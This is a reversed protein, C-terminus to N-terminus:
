TKTKGVAPTAMRQNSDAHKTTRVDIIALGSVAPKTWIQAMGRNNWAPDRVLLMTGTIHRAKRIPFCTSEKRGKIIWPLWLGWGSPLEDWLHMLDCHRTQTGCTWFSFSIPSSYPTDNTSLLGALRRFTALYMSLATVLYITRNVLSIMQM